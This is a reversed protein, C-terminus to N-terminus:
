KEGTDNKSENLLSSIYVGHEISSDLVFNITPTYRIKMRKGMEKRIYGSASKLGLLTQEKKEEDAFVSIFVKAYKLDKTIDVHVISIFDAIRPDNLDNKIVDSIQKKFEESIKAMRDVSM